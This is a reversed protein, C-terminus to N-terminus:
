GKDTDAAARIPVETRATAKEGVLNEIRMGGAAGLADACWNWARELRAEFGFPANVFLLGCGALRKPDDAPRMLFEAVSVRAIRGDAMDAVFADCSVRDKIPYWAAFTGTAFRRLGQRLARALAAFEDKREFPPDVFVLGRRERPPLAAKIAVYGDGDRVEIGTERAFTRALTHADEGHLENAVLRDGPRLAGAILRPSGPYWRLTGDPNLARVAALYGALEPPADARAFIRAIGHTWEGTRSAPDALLDYEGLGAHTDLVFFPKEKEALRAVLLCLAVHKAVDAFNGAHFAHRYNM